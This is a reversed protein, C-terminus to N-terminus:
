KKTGPKKYDQPRYKEMRAKSVKQQREMKRGFLKEMVPTLEELFAIFCDADPLFDPIEEYISRFYKKITGEGLISDVIGVAEKSFGVNVRSMSVTKEMISSFDSKGEYQKEIEGLKAPIAEALEAIKKCGAAFRDFLTPDDTSVAAYDGQNNLEIKIISADSKKIRYNEM